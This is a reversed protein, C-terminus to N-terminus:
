SIKMGWLISIPSARWLIKNFSKCRSCGYTKTKNDALAEVLRWGEGKLKVWTLWCNKLDKSKEFKFVNNQKQKLKQSINFSWLNNCVSQIWNILVLQYKLYRDRALHSGRTSEQTSSFQFTYLRGRFVFWVVRNNQLYLASVNISRIHKKADNIFLKLM